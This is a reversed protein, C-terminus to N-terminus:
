SCNPAQPISCPHTKLPPLGAVGPEAACPGARPCPVPVNDRSLWTSEGADWHCKGPLAASSLTELYGLFAIIVLLVPNPASSATGCACPGGHQFYGWGSQEKNLSSKGAEGRQGPAGTPSLPSWPATVRGVCTLSATLCPLSFSCAGLLEARLSHSLPSLCLQM